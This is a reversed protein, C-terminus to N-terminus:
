PLVGRTTLWPQVQVCICDIVEFKCHARQLLLMCSTKAHKTNLHVHLVSTHLCRTNPMVAPETFLCSSMYAYWCHAVFSAPSSCISRLGENGSSRSFGVIADAIDVTTRSAGNRQMLLCFCFVDYRSRLPVFLRCDVDCLDPGFKRTQNLLLRAHQM